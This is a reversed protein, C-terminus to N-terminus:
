PALALSPNFLYTKLHHRFQIINRASRISIPLLNYVTPEAVLFARIETNRVVRPVFLVDSSSSCLESEREETQRDMQKVRMRSGREGDWKDCERGEVIKWGENERDIM